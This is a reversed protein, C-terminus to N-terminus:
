AAGQGEGARHWLISERVRAVAQDVPDEENMLAFNGTVTMVCHGHVTAILSRTLRKSAPDIPRGLAAAVEKDVIATLKVREAVDSADPEVERPRRHDYAAMWANTHAEAFGFYGAVLRRLRDEGPACAELEARLWATSQSLTATNIAVIYADLSGFVHYISGVSYGARRAAERASFAALGRESMLEHGRAVFLARLEVPTHDSRRAM